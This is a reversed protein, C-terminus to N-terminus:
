KKAIQEMLWAVARKVQERGEESIETNHDAGNLLVVQRPGAYAQEVKEQYKLPVVSDKESLVFVAPAHVQPALLLSNLDQPVQLSIPGALLWLNWWGHHRIIMNQLPPPNQLFLGAAPRKSAVYLAVATGISSGSVVVPKGGAVKALEDYAALAAPPLSALKTPPSSGGYGPYNIAWMEVDHPWWFPMFYEVDGEARSANGNFHLVYCTPATQPKGALRDSWIELVGQGFPITRRKADTSVPDTSPYLILKDTLGTFMVALIFLLYFSGYFIVRKRVARWFSPKKGVPLPDRRIEVPPASM